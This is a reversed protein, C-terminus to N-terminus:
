QKSPVPRLTGIFETWLEDLSKGTSQSFLDDSYTGTRLAQDLKRVLGRDYRGTAWALFAATTRYSDRYSAKEPDIPTRRAEPEYRWWRVYDAIGEVLWGPKNGGDPYSQLIHVMEHIVMGFDDPHRRIWSGNITIRSGSAYAPVRLEKKVVLTITKPPTWTDTALLPALLPFWERTLKQAAEAWPRADPEDTVDIAIEPAPIARAVPYLFRSYPDPEAASIPLAWGAALGLLLVARSTM